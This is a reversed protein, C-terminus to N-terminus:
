VNKNPGDPFNGNESRGSREQEPNRLTNIPKQTKCYTKCRKYKYTTRRYKLPRSRGRQIVNTKGLYIRVANTKGPHERTISRGPWHLVFGLILIVM